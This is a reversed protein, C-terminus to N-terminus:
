GLSVRPEPADVGEPMVPRYAVPFREGPDQIGVRYEGAANPVIRYPSDAADLSELREAGPFDILLRIFPSNGELNLILWEGDWAWKIWARHAAQYLRGHALIKPKKAKKAAVKKKSAAKKKKAM